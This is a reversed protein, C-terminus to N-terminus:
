KEACSAGTPGPSPAGDCWRRWVSRYAEELERTFGREDRLPSSEMRARLGARLAELHELRAALGAAIALYDQHSQAILETLGLSTMQSTGVRAAHTLGALTVVPVGMWLADCSTTTGNYPFPDLAIDVQQYQELHQRHSASHGSFVLRAAEIGHAAFDTRLRTRISEDGFMSYKLMLRSGPVSQLISAWLLIVESNIKSLTNFSGFTVGGQRRAPLESVAPAGNPPRYCSFGRPLRLLQETHLGDTVETPDAVPDTLRYDIAQLGTTNPYGLWTIQVPAPKRAFILLRNGGTHGSLDILIDIQDARVRTAAQEDSLGAIERWQDVDRRLRQTVADTQMNNCYGYVEFREHDHHELVPELFQIIAHRRFDASVYGIKLRREASRENGHPARVGILPGEYRKGFDTHAAFVSAPDIGPLYNLTMLHNSQAEASDPRLAIAQEYHSLAEDLRGQAWLASSISLHAEPYDPRLAIAQECHAMAETLRGVNRFMNGLNVHAEPYNPKLAIAQEYRAIADEIRGLASLANGLNNYMEAYQPKLAIAREYHVVAQDLQAQVALANALNNHTEASHNNLAIARKYRTVAEDLRGCKKLMNALNSHAEAYNPKLAIAREYRAIAEDTRGEAAFANGLNNHFAPDSPRIALAREMFQIATGQNGTQHFVLGLMQLAEPNEPDVQLIQRYLTEAQALRGADHHEVAADMQRAVDHKFGSDSPNSREVRPTIPSEAGCCKKFKKNSGCPCPDNRGPKAM